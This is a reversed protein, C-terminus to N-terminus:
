TVHPHFVPTLTLTLNPNYNSNLNPNPNSNPTFLILTLTLNPNPYSLHSFPSCGCKGKTQVDEPTCILADAALVLM